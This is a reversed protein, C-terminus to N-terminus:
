RVVGDYHAKRSEDLGEETVGHSQPDAMDAPSLYEYNHDVGLRLSQEESIVKLTDRLQRENSVYAGVSQNFHEPIGRTVRFSFDRSAQHGCPCHAKDARSESIVTQGCSPCRYQYEM